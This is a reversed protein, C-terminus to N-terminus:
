GRVLECSLGLRELQEAPADLEGLATRLLDADAARGAEGLRNEREDPDVDLDYLHHKGVNAGGSVWFPLADGPQFPQRIVPITAAPCGTSGAGTRRAAATRRRGERAGADHELPQEVHQAPLQRGGAGARVQPPRRHGAGLQRVGRRDGVRPREDGRRTLLPVCRAATRATRRRRRRVRRRDHRPPGGVTTLADCTGGGAVGPWHILLPIHGLPEFQPVMPKGWIDQGGREDGLYHGHDTCVIVATDDWLGNRDLEGLLRGFWHDIMSLKAGYNGRIHRAERRPSRPRRSAGGVVYPPWILREGEWPETEYRGQWPEPTDFPEHPDFEDVFLLVVAPRAPAARRRGAVRGRRTM